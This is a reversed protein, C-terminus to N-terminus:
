SLVSLTAFAGGLFFFFTITLLFLLAIRKHDRTFLWSEWGLSANLYHERTLVPAYTSM